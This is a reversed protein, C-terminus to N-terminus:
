SQGRFKQDAVMTSKIDGFFSIKVSNITAVPHLIEAVMTSKIVGFLSIKVLNVASVPRLIETVMTSKIDGFLSIKVSNVVPICINQLWQADSIEM